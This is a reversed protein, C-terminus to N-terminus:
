HPIYFGSNKWFLSVCSIRKSNSFCVPYCICVFFFFFLNLSNRATHSIGNYRVLSQFNFFAFLCNNTRALSSFLFTSCTLSPSLLQLQHAQFPRQLSYFNFFYSKIFEFIVPHNTVIWIEANNLNAPITFISLCIQPHWWSISAYFFSM